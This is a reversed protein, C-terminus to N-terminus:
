SQAELTRLLDLGDKWNGLNSASNIHGAAGINVERSGWAKACDQSFARTGYPDNSSSVV